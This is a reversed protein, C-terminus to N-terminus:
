TLLAQCKAKVPQRVGLRKIVAKKPSATGNRAPSGSRRSTGGKVGNMEPMKLIKGWASKSSQSSGGGTNGKRQNGRVSRDQREHVEIDVDELNRLAHSLKTGFSGRQNKEARGDEYEPSVKIRKGTTVPRKADTSAVVESEPEPSTSTFFDGEEGHMEVHGELDNLLIQEGCGEIPCSVFDEDEAPVREGSSQPRERQVANHIDNTATEAQIVFPSINDDEPHQTEM